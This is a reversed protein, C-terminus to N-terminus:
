GPDAEPELRALFAAVAAIGERWAEAQSRGSSKRPAFSHDGDEIWHIDIPGGLGYAAVEDRRGM